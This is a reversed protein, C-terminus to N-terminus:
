PDNRTKVGKTIGQVILFFGVIFFLIGAIRFEIFIEPYNSGSLFIIIGIFKAFIGYLIYETNFKM